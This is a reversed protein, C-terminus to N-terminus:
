SCRSSSLLPRQPFSPSWSKRSSTLHAANSHLLPANPCRFYDCLNAFGGTGRGLKLGNVNILHFLIHIYINTFCSNIDIRAQSGLTLLLKCIQFTKRAWGKFAMPPFGTDALLRRGSDHGCELLFAGRRSYSTVARSVIRVTVSQFGKNRGPTISRWPRQKALDAIKM